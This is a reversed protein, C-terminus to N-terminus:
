FVVKLMDSGRMRKYVHWRSTSEARFRRCDDIKNQLTKEDTQGFCEWSNTEYWSYREVRNGHDDLVGLIYTWPRTKKAEEEAAPRTAEIDKEVLGIAKESFKGFDDVDPKLAEVANRNGIGSKGGSKWRIEIIEHYDAMATKVVDIREIDHPMKERYEDVCKVLAIYKEGDTM